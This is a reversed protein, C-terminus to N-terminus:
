YISESEVFNKKQPSMKCLTTNFYTENLILIFDIFIDHFKKSYSFSFTTFWLRFELQEM